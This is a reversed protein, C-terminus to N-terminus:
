RSCPWRRSDSRGPRVALIDSRQQVVAAEESAESAPYDARRHCFAPVLKVLREAADGPRRASRLRSWIAGAAPVCVDGAIRILNEQGAYEFRMFAAIFTLILAIAVPTDMGVRRNKLDRWTGKYFDTGGFLVDGAAGDAFRGM